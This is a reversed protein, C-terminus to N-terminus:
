SKFLVKFSRTETFVSSDLIVVCDAEFDKEIESLDFNLRYRNKSKEALSRIKEQVNDFHDDFKVGFISDYDIRISRFESECDFKGTIVKSGEEGKNYLEIEIYSEDDVLFKGNVKRCNEGCIVESVEIFTPCKLKCDESCSTEHIELNCSESKECINDGCCPVIAEYECKDFNENYKDLTCVNLDDCDKDEKERCVENESCDSCSCSEGVQCINDGCLERVTDGTITIDCGSVFLVSIM